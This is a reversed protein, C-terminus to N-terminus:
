INNLKDKINEIIKDFGGNYLTSMYKFFKIDMKYDKKYYSLGFNYAEQLKNERELMLIGYYYPEYIHINKFLDFMFKVDEFKTNKNFYCKLKIIYLTIINVKTTKINSLIYNINNIADNYKKFLCLSKVFHYRYNYINPHKNVCECLINHYIICKQKTTPRMHKIEISDVLSEINHTQKSRLQEHIDFIYNYKIKGSIIKRKSGITKNNCFSTKVIYTTMSDMINKFNKNKVICHEDADLLLINDVRKYLRELTINRNHSFNVWTDKTLIFEKNKKQLYEEILEYTNDTSGTDSISIIDIYDIITDLTQIIYESENKVIMSLGLTINPM